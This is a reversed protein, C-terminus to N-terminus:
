KNDQELANLSEKAEELSSDLELAQEYAARAEPLKGLEQLLVALQLYRKGSPGSEAYYTIREVMDSGQQPDIKLAQRYSERMKPYDGLEDYITALSEYCRAQITRVARDKWEPYISVNSVVQIAKQYEVLADQWRGVAILEKGLNAHRTPDSPNFQAAKELGPVAEEDRGLVALAISLKEEAIANEKTAQLTHAWLDYDSRWYGIQRWTLFSLAALIASAFAARWRLNIARAGALDAVGWVVMVFIGLLTVYAYRDAMAQDGVQVLGIVPVLTVLYWLWGTVLYRRAFRQKWVLVSVGALFLAALGPQWVALTGGPHPYYVALETPWFTKWAYMAYSYVANELRVGWPYKEFTRIANAQQTLITIVASGACFTLLPLKELVLRSFPAQSARFRPETNERDVAEFRQKRKKRAKPRPRSAPQGWGQIRQLPWFDLLLLLFPLTIVMPKAALGLVFLAAVVLYRRVNPLRAYWGYAGLALLFFLTSLV